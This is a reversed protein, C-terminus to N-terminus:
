EYGSEYGALFAEPLGSSRNEAMPYHNSVLRQTFVSQLGLWAPQRQHPLAASLAPLAVLGASLPLFAPPYHHRALPPRGYPLPRFGPQGAVLNVFWLTAHYHYIATSWLASPRGAVLRPRFFSRRCAVTSGCPKGVLGVVVQRRDKSRRLRKPGATHAPGM